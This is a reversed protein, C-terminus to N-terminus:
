NTTLVLLREEQMVGALLLVSVDYSGVHVTTRTLSRLEIVGGGTAEIAEASLVLEGDESPASCRMTARTGRLEAQFEVGATGGAVSVTTDEQHGIPLINESETLLPEVAQFTPPFLASLTFAPVDGGSSAVTVSDGELFLLAPEGFAYAGTAGPEVDKQVREDATSVSLTGASSLTADDADSCDIVECGGHTTRTCGSTWSRSAFRADITSIPQSPNYFADIAAVRIEGVGPSVVPHQDEGGCGLMFVATAALWRRKM